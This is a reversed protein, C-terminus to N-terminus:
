RIENIVASQIYTDAKADFYEDTGAFQEVEAYELIKGCQPCYNMNNAKPTEDNNFEWLLGCDSAWVDDFSISWECKEKM